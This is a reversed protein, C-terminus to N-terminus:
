RGDEGADTSQPAADGRSTEGEQTAAPRRKARSNTPVDALVAAEWSGDLYAAAQKLLDYVRGPKEGLVRAAEMQMLGDIWVLRAAAAHREPLKRLWKEAEEREELARDAPMGYSGRVRQRDRFAGSEEQSERLEVIQPAFPSERFGLPRRSRIVDKLSGEIRIRAYNPFKCGRDERWKGACETLALLATSEFDDRAAPWGLAYPRAIWLAFQIHRAALDQQAPTLPEPKPEPYALNALDRELKALERELIVAAIM